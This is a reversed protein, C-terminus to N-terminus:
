DLKAGSAKVRKEGLERDTKLFAAFQDPTSAANELMLGSMRTKLEPSGLADVFAKNLRQTM